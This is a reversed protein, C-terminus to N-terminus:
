RVGFRRPALPSAPKRHNRVVGGILTVTVFSAYAGRAERPQVRAIAVGHDSAGGSAILLFALLRGTFGCDADACEDRLLVRADEEIFQM